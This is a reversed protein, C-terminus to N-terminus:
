QVEQASLAQVYEGLGLREYTALDSDIAKLHHPGRAFRLSGGRHQHADIGEAEMVRFIEDGSGEMTLYMTRAVDRSYDKELRGLSYPFSAGVVGGNRGSAGFGAIAQEVVAVKLSPDRNLLYYATWLGTFGAGFIGVDVDISG